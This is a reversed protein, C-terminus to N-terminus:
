ILNSHLVLVHPILFRLRDRYPFFGLARRVQMRISTATAGSGGSPARGIQWLSGSSQTSPSSRAVAPLAKSTASPASGICKSTFLRWPIQSCKVAGAAALGNWAALHATGRSQTSTKLLGAHTHIFPNKGCSARAILKSRGAANSIASSQRRVANSLLDAIQSPLRSGIVAPQATSHQAAQRAASTLAHFQAAASAPIKDGATLIYFTSAAHSRCQSLQRLM